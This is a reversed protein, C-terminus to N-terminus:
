IQIKYIILNFYLFSDVDNVFDRYQRLGQRKRLLSYTPGLSIRLKVFIKISTNTVESKLRKSSTDVECNCATSPALVPLFRLFLWPEIPLTLLKWVQRLTLSILLFVRLVVHSHWCLLQVWKSVLRRVFEFSVRFFISTVLLLLWLTMPDVWSVFLEKIFVDSHVYNLFNVFLSLVGM